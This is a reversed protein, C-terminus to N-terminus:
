LAVEKLKESVGFFIEAIRPDFQTGSGEMIIKISKEADLGKKYHRASTLADYVDVISMVQGLFPIDTGALGHPYGTGDWREHHSIAFMRAYYLFEVDDVVNAIQDIVHEGAVCHTKMIEMEEDTLRGPKKLIVDSIAIKGVDHLSASSVVLNINMAGLENAYLGKKIMEDIMIRLYATTRWIHSGTVNDRNEVMGALVSTIGNKLNELQDTKQQLQLTRLRILGDIDLHTKLRNTLVPASFPKSIFDVVGLQFGRVEVDADTMGTLFIVPIDAYEGNSKLQHLAEFGDMEPMEIDLLILDPKKKELLKFMKAASLMTMVRYHSQIAHKVMTLNLESDDVVFILKQM